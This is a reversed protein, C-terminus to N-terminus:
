GHHQKGNLTNGSFEPSLITDHRIVLTHLANYRTNNAEHKADFNAILKDGLKEIKTSIWSMLGLVTATWFVMFTAGAIIATWTEATM